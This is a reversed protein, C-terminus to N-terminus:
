SASPNWLTIEDHAEPDNVNSWEVRVIVESVDDVWAEWPFVITAADRVDEVRTSRRIRYKGKNCRISWDSTALAHHPRISELTVSGDKGAKPWKNESTVAIPSDDPPALLGRGPLSKLSSSMVQDYDFQKENRIAARIWTRLSTRPKEGSGKYRKLVDPDRLGGM